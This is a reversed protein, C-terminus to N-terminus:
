VTAEPAILMNYTTPQLAVAISLLSRFAAHRTRRRNFRFTFEDLYSQLHKKRLGHYVGLAWTKLNAFVRHTWPLIIHAAMPGVVHPDHTVGPAGPYGSWGDTRATAGAAVDAEVFAHLSQASFDAIAALRVRGPGGDHVEVAGAVLMRGRSGRGQGGSPPDDKRRLPIATEDIEVLGALPSRDPAVMARRLKGALLWASKYSGLGLQKQLQLAAIGNSHTAMLYAAWFWVALPLKSAHMVTGATVSTQRGCDACEWTFAKTSLEWGKAQGCAPCRFGDPWRAQVLYAACASEDRFRRQFEILSGPFDVM